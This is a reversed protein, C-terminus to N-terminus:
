GVGIDGREVEEGKGAFGDNDGAACAAETEADASSQEFGLSAVDVAAIDKRLRVDLFPRFGLLGRLLVTSPDRVGLQIDRINIHDVLLELPDIFLGLVLHGSQQRGRADLLHNWREIIRCRVETPDHIHINSTLRRRSASTTALRNNSQLFM